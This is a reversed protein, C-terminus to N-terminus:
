AGDSHGEDDEHVMVGVAPDPQQRWPARRLMRVAAARGAERRARLRESGFDLEKLHAEDSGPRAVLRVVHMTTGCGWAALDRVEPDARLAEPMRRELERVIHRLHHLEAQHVINTAARSAFQIDRMRGMTESISGPATGVPQWLQVAFVLSSRRRRDAFVAEIPTNSYLGGDWFPEGNLQVPPFAPPLAASALVHDLGLREERTDFYRMRGTVASVAGVTFRPSGANLQEVDVLRELRERLPAPDYLAASGLSSGLGYLGPVGFWMAEMRRWAPEFPLERGGWASLLSPRALGQWFAALRELRREAPNGAIIAGNLAGISTGIVWDPRLGAEELAECVGVQYAGLAGGGQLVLVVQPPPESTVCKSQVSDNPSADTRTSRSGNRRM